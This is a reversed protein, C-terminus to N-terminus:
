ARCRKQNSSSLGLSSILLLFFVILMWTTCILFSRVLIYQFIHETNVPHVFCLLNICSFLFDTVASIWNYIIELVFPLTEWRCTVHSGTSKWVCIPHSITKRLVARRRCAFGYSFKFQSTVNPGRSTGKLVSVSKYGCVDASVMCMYSYNVDLESDQMSQPAKCTNM